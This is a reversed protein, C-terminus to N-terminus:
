KKNKNKRAKRRKRKEDKQSQTKVKKNGATGPVGVILPQSSPAAQKEVALVPPAEVAVPASVPKVEPRKNVVVKALRLVQQRYLFGPVETEVIMQDGLAADQRVAVAEHLRADFSEGPLGTKHLGLNKVFGKWKETTIDYGKRWAALKTNYTNLSFLGPQPLEEFHAATRYLLDDQELLQLLLQRIEERLERNEAALAVPDPQEQREEAQKRTQEIIERIDQNLRLSAGSLKKVEGRLGVTEKVITYLDPQQAPPFLAELDQEGLADIAEFLYNKFESKTM